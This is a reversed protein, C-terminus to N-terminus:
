AITYSGRVMLKVTAATAKVGRNEITMMCLDNKELASGSEIVSGDTQNILGPSSTAVCTATGVRLMVECGIDGYLVQGQTLTVVTFADTSSTVTGTSGSTSVGSLKDAVQANIDADRASITSDIQEVISNWFTQQLYSLTILPDDSTGVTAMVSVSMCSIASVLMLVVARLKWRNKPQKNM